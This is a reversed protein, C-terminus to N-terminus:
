DCLGTGALGDDQAGNCNDDLGNCIERAEPHISSVTDNCDGPRTSHNIVDKPCLDLETGAGWGDNDNDLYVTMQLSGFQFGNDAVEDCNDDQYNCVEPAGPNIAPNTDNCDNGCIFGGTVLQNCCQDDVDGDRDLDRSGFTSVDCDEDLNGADCVEINGSFRRPDLDDCDGGGCSAAPDGDGDQDVLGIAPDSDDCDFGGCLPDQVGDNDCDCPCIAHGPSAVACLLAILLLPAFSSTAIRM